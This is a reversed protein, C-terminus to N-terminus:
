TTRRRVNVPRPKKLTLRRRLERRELVIPMLADMERLLAKVEPSELDDQTHLMDMLWLRLQFTRAEEYIMKSLPVSKADKTLKAKV